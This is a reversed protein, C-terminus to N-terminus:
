TLRKASLLQPLQSLSSIQWVGDSLETPSKLSLERNIWIHTWGNPLNLPHKDDVLVGTQAAFERELFLRKPEMVVHVPLKLARLVRCHSIKYNQYEVDGFTLIALDKHEVTLKKIVKHVEPYCFDQNQDGILKSIEASVELWPKGSLEFHERHKYLRHGDGVHNHYENITDAFLGAAVGYRDQWVVDMWELMAQHNFLTEDFDLFLKSM